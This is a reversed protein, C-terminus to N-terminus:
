KDDLTSRPSSDSSSQRRPAVAVYLIYLAWGISLVGLVFTQRGGIYEQGFYNIHGRCLDMVGTAFIFGAFAVYSWRIKHQRQPAPERHM